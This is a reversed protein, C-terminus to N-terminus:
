SGKVGNVGYEIMEYDPKVEVIRLQETAKRSAGIYHPGNLLFQGRPLSSLIKKIERQVSVDYALQKSLIHAEEETVRFYLKFGSQKLQNRVPESFKGCLFQTALVTYIKYKQGETLCKGMMSKQTIELNQFEDVFVFLKKTQMNRRFQQRKTEYLTLIILQCLMGVYWEEYQSLDWIINSEVIQIAQEFDVLFKIEPIEIVSELKEYIREAMPDYKIQSELMQIFESFSFGLPNRVLLQKMINKIVRVIEASTHGIANAIYRASGVLSEKTPFYLKLEKGKPEISSIGIRTKDDTSWKDGLDFLQVTARNKSLSKGLLSMFYTKGMRTCGDVLISCNEQSFDFRVEKEQCRLYCM